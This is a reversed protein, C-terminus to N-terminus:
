LMVQDKCNIVKKPATFFNFMSLVIVFYPSLFSCLITHKSVKGIPICFFSFPITQGQFAGVRCTMDVILTSHIRTWQEVASPLRSSLNLSQTLAAVTLALGMVLAVSIQSIISSGVFATEDLITFM